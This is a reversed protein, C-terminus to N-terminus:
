LAVIGHRLAYRTLGAVDHIHLKDMVHARHNEVTKCSVGLKVSIEKSSRGEAVLQLVERERETLGTELECGSAPQNMFTAAFKTFYSGGFAVTTIAERLSQLTDSKDVFGHPRCKLAEIVLSQSLTGSYILVRVSPHAETMRRMVETGTLEPLVLDLILLDPRMDACIQLAKLGSGAEGVIEYNEERKLICALMDRISAHDDVIVIRKKMVRLEKQEQIEKPSRGRSL